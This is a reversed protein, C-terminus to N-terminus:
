REVEVGAGDRAVYTNAWGGHLAFLEAIDRGTM